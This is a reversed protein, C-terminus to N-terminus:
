AAAAFLTGGFCWAATALSPRPATSDAYPRLASAKPAPFFFGLRRNSRSPQAFGSGSRSSDPRTKSVRPLPLPNKHENACMCRMSRM